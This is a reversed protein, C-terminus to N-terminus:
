KENKRNWKIGCDLCVSSPEDSWIEVDGGCEDCKVYKITREVPKDDDTKIRRCTRPLFPQLELDESM